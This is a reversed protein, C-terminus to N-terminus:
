DESCDECVNAPGDTDVEDPHFYGGCIDCQEPEEWDSM